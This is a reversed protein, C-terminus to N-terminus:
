FLVYRLEVTGIGHFVLPHVCLLVAWPKKVLVVCFHKQETKNVM